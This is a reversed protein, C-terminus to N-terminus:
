RWCTDVTNAGTANPAGKRGFNDYTLSGCDSDSNGTDTCQLTYTKATSATIEFTYDGKTGQYPIGSTSLLGVPPYTQNAHRFEEMEVAIEMLPEKCNESRRVKLTYEVYSPMSVAALIGIIAVVIMIEVLTFGKQRLM